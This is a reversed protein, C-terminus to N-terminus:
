THSSIPFSRQQHLLCMTPLFILSSVLVLFKLYLLSTFGFSCAFIEEAGIVSIFLVNWRSHTVIIGHQLIAPPEECSISVKSLRRRAPLTIVHWLSRM